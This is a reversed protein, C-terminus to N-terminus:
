QMVYTIVVVCKFAVIPQQVSEIIAIEYAGMMDDRLCLSFSADDAHKSNEDGLTDDM